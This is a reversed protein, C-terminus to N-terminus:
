ATHVPGSQRLTRAYRASREARIISEVSLLAEDLKDQENLVAYKFRGCYSMELDFRQERLLIQQPTEGQREKIRARLIAPDPPVIFTTIVRSPYRRQLKVAGLVETSTIMDVDGSLAARIDEFRSGYLNGYFEQWEVLKHRARMNEFTARDFFHYDKGDTEGPRPARTTCTIYKKLDSFDQLARNILTTKGVGSPGIFIFLLSGAM